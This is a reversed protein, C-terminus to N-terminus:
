SLKEAADTGEDTLEYIAAKGKGGDDARRCLGLGTLNYVANKASGSTCVDAREQITSLESPGHALLYRLVYGQPKNFTKHEPLLDDSVLCFSGPEWFGHAAFKEGEGDRSSVVEFTLNNNTKQIALLLDVAGLMASSGRYAGAKSNHHIVNLFSETRSAIDRLAIFLAQVDRVANEDAGPMVDVLADIIILRAGTEQIASEVAIVDDQNLLNFRDLTTYYLPTNEGAAHGRLCDGLRRAMGRPGSEEDIILVPSQKTNKGLWPEGLAVCVAADLMSYTKATKPDGVLLGVGGTSFLGEIIWDIAPQPQLADAASHLTYRRAPADQPEESQSVENRNPLNASEFTAADKQSIANETPWNASRYIARQSEDPPMDNVQLWEYPPQEPEQLAPFVVRAEIM